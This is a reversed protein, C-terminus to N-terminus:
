HEGFNSFCKLPVVIEAYKAGNNDGLKKTINIKYHYFKSDKISYNIIDDSDLGSNPEDRYYNRLSGSTKSYNKSYEILNYMPMVIDLYKANYIRTNNIKSICRIFPANNNFVLKNDCADNDARTVSITMKVVIYADSYDCLGPQLM